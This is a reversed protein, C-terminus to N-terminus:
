GAPGAPGLGAVPRPFHALAIGGGPVGVIPRAAAIEGIVHDVVVGRDAVGSTPALVGGLGSNDVIEQGGHWIRDPLHLTRGDDLAVAYREFPLERAGVGAGPAVAGGRGALVEGIM